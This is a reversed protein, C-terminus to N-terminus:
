HRNHEARCDSGDGRQGDISVRSVCLFTIGFGDSKVIFGQFFVTTVSVNIIIKAVCVITGAM